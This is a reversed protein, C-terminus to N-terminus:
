SWLIKGSHKDLSTVRWEHVSVDNAPDIGDDKPNHVAKPSSSIAATVFVRDGWIVPSSHGLGPIATKWLINVSKEGDWTVPLPRADAIGSGNPGRFAPWNQAHAAITLCFWFGIIATRHLYTM